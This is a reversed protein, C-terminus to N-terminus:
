ARYLGAFLHRNVIPPGGVSGNSAQATGFSAPTPDDRCFFQGTKLSSQLALSASALWTGSATGLRVTRLCATGLLALLWRVARYAALARTAGTGASAWMLGHAGERPRRETAQRKSIRARAHASAAEDQ